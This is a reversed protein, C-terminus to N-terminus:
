FICLMKMQFESNFFFCHSVKKVNFNFNSYIVGYKTLFMKKIKASALKIFSGTDFWVSQLLALVKKVRRFVDLCPFAVYHTALLFKIFNLFFDFTLM